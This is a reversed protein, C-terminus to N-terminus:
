DASKQYIELLLGAPVRIEKLDGLSMRDIAQHMLNRLDQLDKAASPLSAVVDIAPKAQKSPPSESQKSAKYSSQSTRSCVLSAMAYARDPGIGAQELEQVLRARVLETRKIEWTKLLNVSTLRAHHRLVSIWRPYFNPHQLTELLQTRLEEGEQACAYDQALVRYEDSTMKKLRKISPALSEPTCVFIRDSSVDVGLVCDINPNSFGDWVGPGVDTLPSPSPYTAGQDSVRLRYLTDSSLSDVYEVIESLENGVLSKLGGLSKITKPAIARKVFQGLEAGIIDPGHKAAATVLATRIYAIENAALRSPM